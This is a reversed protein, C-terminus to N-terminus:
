KLSYRKERKLFATDGGELIDCVQKRIENNELSGASYIIRPKDGSGNSDEFKAVIVQESDTNVVLNPNHTAIIIQRKKKIERFDNVLDNFVSKNDLNDEPQDILLPKSSSDLRLFVKMLVLGKQGPSLTELSKGKFEIFYNVDYYDDFIWNYLDNISFSKKLLNDKNKKEGFVESIFNESEVSDIFGIITGIEEKSVQDIKNAKDIIRDQLSEIIREQSNGSGHNIIADEKELFRNVNFEIKVKFGINQNSELESKLENYKEKQDVKIELLNLYHSKRQNQLELIQEKSKDLGKKQQELQNLEEELKGKNEIWARTNKQETKLNKNMEELPQIKIQLEEVKKNSENNEEELKNVVEEVIEQGKINIDLSICDFMSVDINNLQIIKSNMKNQFQEKLSDVEENIWNQFEIIQNTTQQNKRIQANLEQEITILSKYEEDQEESFNTKIRPENKQHLDIESKKSEFADEISKLKKVKEELEGIENNLEQIKNIQKSIKEEFKSLDPSKTHIINKIFSQFKDKQDVYSELEKLSLYRVKAHNNTESKALGGDLYHANKDDSGLYGIHVETNDIEERARNYFSYSNKKDPEFIGEENAIALLDLLATKGSGKEGIITILGSNLPIEENGFWNNSNEIKISDLVISKQEDFFPNNQQIKIREKPEYILQKLGEFTKDAKIWTYCRYNENELDTFRHIDQSHILVSGGLSELVSEKKSVDDNPSATFLADAKNLLMEKFPRLQGGKELNNWEKYGLLVFVRESWADSEILRMVKETSPVYNDFGNRLTGGIEIFSEKSLSKTEHFRSINIQQIFEEKIKKVERRWNNDDINFLVHLNVKQFKSESATAFTDIRFEIVPFVRKINPLRGKEMKYEMVKEFGDIFYYDNIGIVEVDKPLNELHEIYKDWVEESDGGYDNIISYPTHIHLDWRSWKSGRSLM